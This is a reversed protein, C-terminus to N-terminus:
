LHYKPEFDVDLEEDSGVGYIENLEREKRSKECIQLFEGDNEASYKNNKVVDYSDISAFKNKKKLEILHKKIQEKEKPNLPNYKIMESDWLQNGNYIDIIYLHHKKEKKPKQTNTEIVTLKMSKKM